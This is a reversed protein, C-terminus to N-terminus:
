NISSTFFCHRCLKLWRQKQLNLWDKMDADFNGSNGGFGDECKDGYFSEFMADDYEETPDDEDHSTNVLSPFPTQDYHKGCEACFPKSM